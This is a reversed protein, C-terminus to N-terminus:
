APPPPPVNLLKEIELLHRELVVLQQDTSAGVHSYDTFVRRISARQAATFADIRHQIEMQSNQAIDWTVARLLRDEVEILRRRIGSLRSETEIDIEVFASDM